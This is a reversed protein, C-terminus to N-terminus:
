RRYALQVPPSDQLVEDAVALLRGRDATGALNQTLGKLEGCGLWPHGQGYRNAMGVSITDLAKKAGTAGMRATYDANLTNYAAQMTGYQNTSFRAYDSQFNDAGFRCRLSSVMLMIDLRRLQAAEGAATQAQAPVGLALSSVAALVAAVKHFKGM